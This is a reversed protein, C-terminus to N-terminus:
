RFSLGASPGSRGGRGRPSNRAPRDSMASGTPAVVGGDVRKVIRHTNPDIMYRDDAAVFRALDGKLELVSPQATGESRRTKTCDLVVTNNERNKNGLCFCYWLNEAFNTAEASDAHSMRAGPSRRNAQGSLQNVVWVRCNFHTAILRRAEDGFEGMLHRLRRDPDWGRARIMRRVCVLAYDIIVTDPLVDHQRRYKELEAHIEDIGGSGAKPNDRPGRMDMIHYINWINRTDNFREWEGRPDNPFLAEEYPHRRGQRSLTESYPLRNLHDLKIQALYAIVRKRIDNPSTEYTFHFVHRPQVQQQTALRISRTAAEGGIGCALMTKGSGYTGLLGYVEGDAAGGGMPVDLFPFGTPILVLQEEQFGADTMLDHAVSAGIAQVQAYRNQFDALLSSVDVPNSDGLGALVRKVPDTWHREKLFKQLLDFGYAGNQLLVDLDLDYVYDIFERLEEVGNEPVEDPYDSIRSLADAELMHKAPLANYQMYLDMCSRWCVAWILEYPETFHAPTLIQRAEVFVGPHRLLYYMLTEREDFAMRGHTQIGLGPVADNRNQSLM